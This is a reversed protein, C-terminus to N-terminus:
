PSIATGAHAPDASARRWPPTSWADVTAHGAAIDQEIQDVLIVSTAAHDHRGARLTGAAVRLRVAPPVLAPVTVVGIMRAATLLV